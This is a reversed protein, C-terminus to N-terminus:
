VARLWFHGVCIRRLHLLYKWAPRRPWVWNDPEVYSDVALGANAIVQQWESMSRFCVGVGATNAGMGRVMKSISRAATLEYIIRGPLSKFVWGEFLNEYMSIRGGTGLLTRLAQLTMLQNGTTKTYTSSVVHHLLWHVCVLDFKDSFTSLKEVSDCILQKRDHSANKSLLMESNDLVAGSAHPFSSLLRDAFRGTGGGVDLFRFRGDPFDKEILRKVVDWRNGEVYETDFAAAQSDELKRIEEMQMVSVKQSLAASM